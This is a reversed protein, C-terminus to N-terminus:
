IGLRACVLGPNCTERYTLVWSLRTLIERNVAENQNFRRTYIVCRFRRLTGGGPAVTM